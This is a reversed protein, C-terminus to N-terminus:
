LGLAKKQIMEIQTINEKKAVLRLIFGPGDYVIAHEGGATVILEYGGQAALHKANEPYSELGYEVWAIRYMKSFERQAFEFMGLPYKTFVGRLTASKDFIFMASLSHKIGEINMALIFRGDTPKFAGEDLIAASGENLVETVSPINDVGLLFPGWKPGALLATPWLTAALAVTIAFVQLSKM